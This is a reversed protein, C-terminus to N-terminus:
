QTAWYPLSADKESFIANAADPWKVGFAPDDWRIGRATGPNFPVTMQYFVETNDVITQFGHAVGKPIYLARHNESSLEVGYWNRYSASDLRLDIIVDFLAGMTVRVLKEEADPEVQYHLGRLIGRRQNFSVSQQVFDANVGYRACEERCVTRAFFGREDAQPTIELLFAGTIPLPIFKVSSASVSDARYLPRGM